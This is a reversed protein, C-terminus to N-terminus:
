GWEQDPFLTEREPTPLTAPKTDKIKAVQLPAEPDDDSRVPETGATKILITMKGEGRPEGSGAVM